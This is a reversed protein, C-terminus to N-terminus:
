KEEPRVEGAIGPRVEGRTIGPRVEGILLM